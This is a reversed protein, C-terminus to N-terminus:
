VPVPLAARRATGNFHKLASDHGGALREMDLRDQELTDISEMCQKKSDDEDENESEATL